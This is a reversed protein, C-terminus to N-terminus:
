ERVFFYGTQPELDIRLRIFDHYFFRNMIPLVCMVLLSIKLIAISCVATSELQVACSKVAFCFITTIELGLLFALRNRADINSAISYHM